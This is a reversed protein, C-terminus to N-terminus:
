LTLYAMLLFTVLCKLTQKLFLINKISAKARRLKDCKKGISTLGLSYKDDPETSCLESNKGRTPSTPVSGKLQPRQRHIKQKSDTKSVKGSPEGVQVNELPEFRNKTPVQTAPLAQNVKTKGSKGYNGNPIKKTSTSVDKLKEKGSKKARRQPDAQSVRRLTSNTACVVTANKVSVTSESKVVDSFLKKPPCVDHLKYLSQIYM